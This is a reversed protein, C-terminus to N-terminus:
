QYVLVVDASVIVKGTLFAFTSSLDVFVARVFYEGLNMGRPSFHFPIAGSHRIALPFSSGTSNSVLYLNLSHTGINTTWSVTSETYMKWKTTREPPAAPSTFNWFYVFLSASISFTSNNPDSNSLLISQSINGPNGTHVGIEFPISSSPPVILGSAPISTIPYFSSPFFSNPSILLSQNPDNNSIIITTNIISGQLVPSLVVGSTSNGNGIPISIGSPSVRSVSISGGGTSASVKVDFSPNKPDNTNFTIDGSHNGAALTDQSIVLVATQGPQIITMGSNSVNGGSIIFHPPLNLNSLTLPSSGSNSLVLTQSSPSNIAATPFNVSGGNSVANGNSTIRLSPSQIVTSITSSFSTTITDNTHIELTGNFTGPDSSGCFGVIVNTSQGPELVSATPGSVVSYGLGSATVSNINM